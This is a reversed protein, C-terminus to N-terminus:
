LRSCISQDALHKLVCHRPIGREAEVLKEPRCGQRCKLLEAVAETAFGIGSDHFFENADLRCGPVNPCCGDLAHKIEQFTVVSRAETEAKAGSAGDIPESADNVFVPDLLTNVDHVEAGTATNGLNGHNGVEYSALNPHLVHHHNGVIKSMEGGTGHQSISYDSETFATGATFMEM